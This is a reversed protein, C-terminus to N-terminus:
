ASLYIWASAVEALGWFDVVPCDVVEFIPKEGGGGGRGVFM